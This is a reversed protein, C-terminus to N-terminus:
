VNERGDSDEEKVELPINIIFEEDEKMSELASKIIKVTEDM